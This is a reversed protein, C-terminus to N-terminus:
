PGIEKAKPIRGTNKLHYIVARIKHRTSKDDVGYVAIALEGLGMNPSKSLALLAAAAFSGSRVNLDLARQGDDPAGDGRLEREIAEIAADIDKTLRVRDALLGDRRHVLDVVRQVKTEM